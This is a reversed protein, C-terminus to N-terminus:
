SISSYITSAKQKWVVSNPRWWMFLSYISIMIQFIWRVIVVDFRSCGAVTRHGSRASKIERRTNIISIVFPTRGHCLCGCIWIAIGDGLKSFDFLPELFVLYLVPMHIIVSCIWADAIGCPDAKFFPDQVRCIDQINVGDPIGGPYILSSAM